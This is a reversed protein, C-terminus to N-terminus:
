TALQHVTMQYGLAKFQRYRKRAATVAATDPPIFDVLRTFSPNNLLEAPLTDLTLILVKHAPMHKLEIGLCVPEETPAIMHPIFSGQNFVWLLRDLEETAKQSACLIGAGGAVQYIKQIVRCIATLQQAKDQLTDPLQYFTAEPM